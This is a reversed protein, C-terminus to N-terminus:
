ICSLQEFGTENRIKEKVYWLAGFSSNGLSREARPVGLWPERRCPCVLDYM